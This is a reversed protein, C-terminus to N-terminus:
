LAGRPAQNLASKHERPAVAMQSLTQALGADGRSPDELVPIEGPRDITIASSNGKLTARRLVRVRLEHPAASLLKEGADFAALGISSVKFTYAIRCMAPKQARDELGKARAQLVHKAIRDIFISNGQVLGGCDFRCNQEGEPFKKGAGSM